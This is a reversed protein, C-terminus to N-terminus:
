KRYCAIGRVCVSGSMLNGRINGLFLSFTGLVGKLVTPAAVLVQFIIEASDIIFIMPEVRGVSLAETRDRTVSRDCDATRAGLNVAAEEAATVLSDNEAARVDYNVTSGKGRYVGASILRVDDSIGRKLYAAALDNVGVAAVVLGSVDATRDGDRNVATIYVIEVASSVEGIVSICSCNRNIGAADSIEVAASVLSLDASRLYDQGSVRDDGFGVAASIAAYGVTIRRDGERAVRLCAENVAACVCGVYFSAYSEIYRPSANRALRKASVVM